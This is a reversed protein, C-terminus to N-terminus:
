YRAYRALEAASVSAPTNPIGSGATAPWVARPKRGPTTGVMRYSPEDAELTRLAQMAAHLGHVFRLQPKFPRLEPKFMGPMSAHYREKDVLVQYRRERLQHQHCNGPVKCTDQTCHGRLGTM